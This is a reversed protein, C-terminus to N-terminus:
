NLCIDSAINEVADRWSRSHKERHVFRTVYDMTQTTNQSGTLDNLAAKLKTEGDFAKWAQAELETRLLPRNVSFMRAIDNPDIGPGDDSVVITGDEKAFYDVISASADWANDVLEKVILPLINDSIVGVRQTLRELFTYQTWDERSFTFNEINLEETM